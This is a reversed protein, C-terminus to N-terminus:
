TLFDRLRYYMELKISTRLYKEKLSRPLYQLVYSVSSSFVILYLNFLWDKIRHLSDDKELRDELIHEAGIADVLDRTTKSLRRGVILYNITHLKLLEFLSLPLGELELPSPLYKIINILAGGHSTWYLNYPSCNRRAVNHVTLYTQAIAIERRLRQIQLQRILTQDSGILGSLVLQPTVHSSISHLAVRYLTLKSSTLHLSGEDNTFARAYIYLDVATKMGSLLKLDRDSLLGRRIAISSNNFDAGTLADIIDIACPIKKVREDIILDPHEKVAGLPLLFRAVELPITRGDEDIAVQRNHFYVVDRHSRFTRDVVELREPRYMDDDELFTIVEGKAEELGIAIKGGLPAVDTVVDRWGNRRVIGDSAPDEFNKVVIVEFKDKSLTQAELSRLAEPLYRRRDHATVIVSVYPDM